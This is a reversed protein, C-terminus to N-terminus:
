NRWVVHLVFMISELFLLDTVFQLFFGLAGCCMWMVQYLKRERTRWGWGGFVFFAEHCDLGQIKRILRHALNCHYPFCKWVCFFPLFSSFTTVGASLTSPFCIRWISAPLVCGAVPVGCYLTQGGAFEPFGGRKTGQTKEEVFSCKRGLDRFIDAASYQSSSFHNNIEWKSEATSCSQVWCCDSEKFQNQWTNGPAELKQKKKMHIQIVAVYLITRTIRPAIKKKIIM